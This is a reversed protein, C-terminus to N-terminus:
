LAEDGKTWACPLPVHVWYPKNFADVGRMFLVPKLEDTTQPATNLYKAFGAANYEQDVAFTISNNVTIFRVVDKVGNIEAMNQLTLMQTTAEVDTYVLMYTGPLLSATQRWYDARACKVVSWTLLICMLTIIAIIYGKRKVNHDVSGETEM